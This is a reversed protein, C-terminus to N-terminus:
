QLVSFLELEFDDHRFRTWAWFVVGLAPVVVAAAWLFVLFGTSVVLVSVEAEAAGAGDDVAAGPEGCVILTGGSGWFVM